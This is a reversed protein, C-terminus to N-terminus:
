FPKYQLDGNPNSKLIKQDLNIYYSERVKLGGSLFLERFKTEEEWKDKHGRHKKWIITNIMREGEEAKQDEPDANKDALSMARKKQARVKNGKGKPRGRKAEKANNIFNGFDM